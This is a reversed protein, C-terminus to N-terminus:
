GYCWCAGQSLSVTYQSDIEIINRCIAYNQPYIVQSNMVPTCWLARCDYTHSNTKIAFNAYVIAFKCKDPIDPINPPQTIQLFYTGGIPTTSFMNINLNITKLLEFGSKSNILNELENEKTEVSTGWVDIYEFASLIEDRLKRVGRWFALNSFRDPLNKMTELYKSLDM